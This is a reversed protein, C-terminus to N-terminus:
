SSISVKESENKFLSAPRSSRICMIMVVHRSSRKYRAGRCFSLSFFIRSRPVPVPSQLGCGERIVALLVQNGSGLWGMRESVPANSIAWINGSDLTHSTQHVWDHGYSASASVYALNDPIVEAGDLWNPLMLIIMTLLTFHESNGLTGGLTVNSTSSMSLSQVYSQWNSKMKQRYRAAQM